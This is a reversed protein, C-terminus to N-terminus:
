SASGSPESPRVSTSPRLARSVAAGGGLVLAFMAAVLAIVLATENLEAGVVAYVGWTGVAVTACIVAAVLLTRFWKM